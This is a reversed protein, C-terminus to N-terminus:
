FLLASREKKDQSGYFQNEKRAKLNENHKMKRKIDEM